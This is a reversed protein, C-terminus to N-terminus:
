QEERSLRIWEALKASDAFWWRQQDRFGRGYALYQAAFIEGECSYLLVQRGRSQFVSLVYLREEEDVRVYEANAKARIGEFDDGPSIRGVDLDDVLLWFRSSVPLHQMVEYMVIPSGIACVLGVITSWVITRRM